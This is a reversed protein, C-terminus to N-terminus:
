FGPWEQSTFAEHHKAKRSNYVSALGSANRSDILNTRPGQRLSLNPMSADCPKEIWRVSNHSMFFISASTENRVTSAAQVAGVPFVLMVEFAFVFVVASVFDVAPADSASKIALSFAPQSAILFFSQSPNPFSRALSKM